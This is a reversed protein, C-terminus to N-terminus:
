RQLSATSQAFTATAHAAAGSIEDLAERNLNNLDDCARHYCSDYPEGPQGGFIEAQEATKITSDGSFIGGVPVGVRAFPGHDSRGSLDFTDTELDQSEFYSEFIQTVQQSGYLMPVYNTSAIMDFNLYVSIEDLKNADLERVYHRSGLLGIEEGGWFAFRLRNRPEEDLEAIEEAIELITASGSGNDNIGPSNPASDLHAGLMVTNKSDGSISTAIVNSTTGGGESQPLEVKQLEVEYGAKRLTQAVYDASAEYGPTGAARDGGNEDAITAFRPEHEM